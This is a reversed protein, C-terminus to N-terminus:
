TDLYPLSINTHMSYFATRSHQYLLTAVIIHWYTSPLCASMHERMGTSKQQAM